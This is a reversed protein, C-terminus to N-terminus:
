GGVWCREFVYHWQVDRQERRRVRYGADALWGLVEEQSSGFRELYQPHLELFIARPSRDKLIAHAGRLALCEAGEIDMKIVDPAPLEGRAVLDDLARAEVQIQGAFTADGLSPSRGATGETFLTVDGPQDSVAYPLVNLNDFRNIRINTQLHARFSPDPEFAVVRRARRAAHLSFVGICAGIDYFTDTDTLEHLVDLLFDREDDLYRARNAETLNDVEFWIGAPDVQKVLLRKPYRAPVVGWKEGHYRVSSIVRHYLEGLRGM